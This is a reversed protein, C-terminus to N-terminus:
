SSKNEIITVLREILRWQEDQNARIIESLQENMWSRQLQEASDNQLRANLTVEALEQDFEDRDTARETWFGFYGSAFSGIQNKFLNVLLLAVIVWAPLDPPLKIDMISFYKIGRFDAFRPMRTSRLPKLNVLVHSPHLIEILSAPRVPRVRSLRHAVM